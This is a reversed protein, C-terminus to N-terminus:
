TQNNIYNCVSLLLYADHLHCLRCKESYKYTKIENKIANDFNGYNKYLFNQPYRLLNYELTYKLMSRESVLNNLITQVFINCTNNMYKYGNPQYDINRQTEVTSKPYVTSNTFLVEAVKSIENKKFRKKQIIGIVEDLIEIKRKIFYECNVLIKEREVDYLYSGILKIISEPLSTIDM